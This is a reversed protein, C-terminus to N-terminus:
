YCDFTVKIKNWREILENYENPYLQKMEERNVYLGKLFKNVYNRIYFKNYYKQFVVNPYEYTIFEYIDLALLAYFLLFKDHKSSLTLSNINRRYYYYTKENDDLSVMKNALVLLKLYTNGDEMYIRKCYDIKDFLKKNILKNNLYNIAKKDLIAKLKEEDTEFITLEKPFNFDRVDDSCIFNNGDEKETFMISQSSVIDANYEIAANYLRELYDNSVYDDGDIFAIFDGKAEKTGIFRGMGCGLNKENNIIKIRNDKKSYENIIELSNDTSCDNILILEFDTFSQKLISDICEGIYKEINYVTTIVSVKM